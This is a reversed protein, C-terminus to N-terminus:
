RGARPLSLRVATGHPERDVIEIDGGSQEVTWTVLWLGLGSGHELPSEADTRIVRREIAPIGPGDDAVEIVVRDGETRITVDVLPGDSDGHEIANEVLEDIAVSLRGRSRVTAHEPADVVITANPFTMRKDEVVDAVLATVDVPTPENQQLRVVDRFERVADSMDVLSQAADEMAAVHERVQEDLDDRSRLAESRGLIVNMKNKLNHRLVRELVALRQERGKPETIDRVIGVTGRFGEEAPLLGISIECLRRDGAATEVVIEATRSEQADNSYLLDMILGECVEVDTEDMLISPDSGLLEDREYGTFSLLTDNVDTFRGEADLTYIPDGAAQVLRRYRELERERRVRDTVDRQFGLYHTTTGDGNTVPILSVRNWFPTGDKRYNRVRVTIPERADIAARMRDTTDPDTEEGQLFRCNRGIAEATEYGTLRSFAENVYVLPEDERTVDVITIGQQAADMAALCLDLQDVAVSEDVGSATM